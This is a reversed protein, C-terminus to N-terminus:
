YDYKILNAQLTSYEALLKGVKANNNIFLLM